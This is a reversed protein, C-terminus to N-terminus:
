KLLDNLYQCIDLQPIIFLCYTLIWLWKLLHFEEADVDCYTVVTGSFLVGERTSDTNLETIDENSLLHCEDRDDLDDVREVRHDMRPGRELDDVREVRHDMRPGRELDDVREVRHDMRPERELLQGSVGQTDCMEKERVVEVEEQSLCEAQIQSTQDTDRKINHCLTCSDMQHSEAWEVHQDDEVIHKGNTVDNHHLDETSLTDDSPDHPELKACFREKIESNAKRSPPDERQHSTKVASHRNEKACGARDTGSNNEGSTILEFPVIQGCVDEVPLTSVYGNHDNCAHQNEGVAISEALAIQEFGSICGNRNKSVVEERCQSISLMSHHENLVIVPQFGSDPRPHDNGEEDLALIYQFAEEEDSDLASLMYVGEESSLSLMEVDVSLEACAQGRTGKVPFSNGSSQGETSGTGVPSCIGEESAYLAPETISPHKEHASSPSSLGDPLYTNTDYSGTYLESGNVKDLNQTYVLFQTVYTIISQEDPTRITADELDLLQPIGLVNHAVRFAEAVNEQPLKTLATRTDVLAPNISKILALFALGSRWSRGFDRVEVDYKSTCIQVWRLLTKIATGRYKSTHSSNRKRSPFTNSEWKNSTASTCISTTDRSAHISKGSNTSLIHRINRTSKKIHFLVIITWILGLVASPIGDAVDSADISKCKVNRDELFNLVKTINNLRFIRHTPPRFRYLMKCGSLEELLAMLMRGDQVDSFLDCVEMPPECRKLHINIWRTFTRKQIAEKEEQRNQM